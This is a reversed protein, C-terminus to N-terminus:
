SITFFTRYQYVIFITVGAVAFIEHYRENATIIALVSGIIQTFIFVLYETGLNIFHDTGKSLTDVIDWLWIALLLGFIWVRRSYYYDKYSGIQDTTTPQILLSAFFLLTAYIIVVLYISLSWDVRDLRFEWWWFAVILLFLYFNWFLHVWYPRPGDSTTVLRGIGRLIQTLALGVIISILVAVYEFQSV